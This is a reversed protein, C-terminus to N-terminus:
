KWETCTTVENTNGFRDSQKKTVCRRERVKTPVEVEVIRDVYVIKEVIVEKVPNANDCIDNKITELKQKAKTHQKDSWKKADSPLSSLAGISSDVVNGLCSGLHELNGYGGSCDKEEAIVSSSILVSTLLALIQKKM